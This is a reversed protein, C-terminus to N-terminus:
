KLGSIKQNFNSGLIPFPSRAAGSAIVDSTTPPPPSHYPHQQQFPYPPANLEHCLFVRKRVLEKTCNSHAKHKHLWPPEPIVCNVTESWGGAIIIYGEGGTNWSHFQVPLLLRGPSSSQGM